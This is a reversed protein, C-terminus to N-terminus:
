VGLLAGEPHMLGWPMLSCGLSPQRTSCVGFCGWFGGGLM